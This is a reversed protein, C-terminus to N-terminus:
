SAQVMEQKPAAQETTVTVPQTEDVSKKGFFAQLLLLGAGLVLCCDAINFTPWHYRDYYHFHLFDRVGGFVIRDYLNGLTGALILGLAASLGPDQRASRRTSWYCIAAAALLSIVAFLINALDGQNGDGLGFLAGHNVRPMKDASITQLAGLSGSGAAADTYESSLEFIGSFVKYIGYDSGNYLWRFVGYKTVQDLVLGTVALAAFLKRYSRVTM